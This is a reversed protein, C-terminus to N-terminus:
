SQAERQLDHRPPDRAARAPLGSGECGVGHRQTSGAVDEGLQPRAQAAARKRFAVALLGAVALALVSPEPAPTPEDRFVLHRYDPYALATTVPLGTM